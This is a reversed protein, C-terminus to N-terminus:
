LVGRPASVRIGFVNHRTHRARPVPNVGLLVVPTIMWIFPIKDNIHMHLFTCLLISLYFCQVLLSLQIFKKLGDDTWSIGIYSVSQKAPRLRTLDQIGQKAATPTLGHRNHTNHAHELLNHFFLDAEESKAGCERCLHCSKAHVHHAFRVAHNEQKEATAAM